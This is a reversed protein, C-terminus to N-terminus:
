SWAGVAESGLEVTVSSVAEQLAKDRFADLFGHRGFTAAGFDDVLIRAADRVDGRAAPNALCFTGTNEGTGLRSLETRPEMFARCEPQGFFLEAHGLISVVPVVAMGLSAAHAVIGRMDGATYCEGEPLSFTPTAVRAELYLQLTDYGVAAMRDVFEGVFAPTEMQRALDLQVIKLESM